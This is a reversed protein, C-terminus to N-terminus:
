NKLGEIFSDIYKKENTDCFNNYDFSNKLHPCYNSGRKIYEVMSDYIGNSPFIELNDIIKKIEMDEWYYKIHGNGRSCNIKAMLPSFNGLRVM